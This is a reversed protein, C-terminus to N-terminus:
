RRRRSGSRAEASRSNTRACTPSTSRPPRSRRRCWRPRHSPQSLGSCRLTEEGDPQPEGSWHRALFLMAFCHTVDGGPYTITHREAESLCGFPVLDAPNVVVSTEELVETIATAAFNSGDEAGGGPLCWRGNDVRRTFLVAGDDRVLFVM